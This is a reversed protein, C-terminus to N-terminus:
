LNNVKDQYSNSITIKRQKMKKIAECLQDQSIKILHTQKNNQNPIAPTEDLKNFSENSKRNAFIPPPPLLISSESQQESVDFYHTIQAYIISWNITISNNCILIESLEFIPTIHYGADIDDIFIRKNNKDFLVPYQANSVNKIKFNMLYFNGKKTFKNKLEISKHWKLSKQHKNIIKINQLDDFSDYHKLKNLTKKLIYNEIKILKKHFKVDSKSFNHLQLLSLKNGYVIPKQYIKMLPGKIIIKKYMEDTSGDYFNMKMYTTNGYKGAYNFNDGFYSDKTSKTSYDFYIKNM